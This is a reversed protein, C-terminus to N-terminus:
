IKKKSVGTQLLRPFRESLACVETELLQQRGQKIRDGTKGLRESSQLLRERQGSSTAFYDDGLGLEARAAAGGSAAVSAARVEEKLKALDSKYDRM